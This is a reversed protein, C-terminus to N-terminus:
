SLDTLKGTLFREMTISFRNVLSEGYVTDKYFSQSTEAIYGRDMMRRLITFSWKYDIGMYVSYETYGIARHKHRVLKYLVILYQLEKFEIEGDLGNSMRYLKRAFGLIDLANSSYDRKGGRAVQYRYRDDKFRPM